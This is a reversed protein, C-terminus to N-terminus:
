KRWRWHQRHQRQEEITPKAWADCAHKRVLSQQRRDLFAAVGEQRVGDDIAPEHQPRADDVKV